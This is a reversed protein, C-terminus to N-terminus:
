RALIVKRVELRDPTRLHFFYLGSPLARRGDDSGDWIARSWEGTGRQDALQRVLRGRLDHVTLTFDAGQAVRYDLATRPNAPNPWAQKAMLPSLSPRQDLALPEDQNLYYVQGDGTQVTVLYSVADSSGYSEFPGEDRVRYTHLQGLTEGPVALDTAFGQHIIEDGALHRQIELDAIQDPTWPLSLTLEVQGSETWSSEMRYDLTAVTQDDTVLLRCYGATANNEINGAPAAVAYDPFSDGDFDGIGAVSFGFLNGAQTGPLMPDVPIADLVTVAGSASTGGEYIYARGADAGDPSYFPAGILLDDRGNGTFDGLNDLSYGLQHGGAEGTAYRDGTNSPNEDGFIIELRGTSGSQTPAGVALDDYGDNDWRGANRVVWGYRSSAATGGVSLTFDSDSDPAFPWEPGEFVYVRGADAGLSDHGPAGVAVCPYGALFNGASSVSWGFNDDGVEGILITADALDTSPDGNDGYIIYAAGRAGSHYPAGVVFDDKGDGNFDGAAAISFGFQDGGIQGSIILDPTSSLAGGGYFICVRGKETGGANSLPAGVAFDPDGDGNVDGILAVSFGFKEGAVGYWSEAPQHTVDSNGYWLFAAGTNSEGPAGILIDTLGDGDLDGVGCVSGGFEQGSLGGVPDSLHIVGGFAMVPFIFVVALVWLGKAACCNSKIFRSDFRLL